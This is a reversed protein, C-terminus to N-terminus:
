QTEASAAIDAAILKRVYDAMTLGRADAFRKTLAYETDTVPLNIRKNSAVEGRPKRGTKKFTKCPAGVNDNVIAIPTLDNRSM